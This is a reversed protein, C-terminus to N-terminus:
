NEISKKLASLGSKYLDGVAQRAAVDNLEPPPDNNPYGRYFAGKWIVECSDDDKKNVILWSSYNTVPLAEVEVHSIRYFYKMEAADYKELLEDIVAGSKLQLSRTDGPQNENSSSHTQKVAPHWNMNNFNGIVSWVQEAPANIIIQESVKQRTPGHAFALCSYMIM